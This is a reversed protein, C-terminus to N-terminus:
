LFNAALDLLPTPQDIQIGSKLGCTVFIVSFHQGSGFPALSPPNQITEDASTAQWPIDNFIDSPL